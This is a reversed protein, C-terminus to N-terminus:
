FSTTSKTLALRSTGLQLLNNDHTAMVVACGRAAQQRLLNIIKESNGSDLSGTPEDAIIVQPERALARAVVVRQMEGGSLTSPFRGSMEKLGVYELLAECRQIVSNKSAVDGYQFPLSVNEIVNRDPLLHPAQFIFGFGQNRVRALGSGSLMSLKEGRFFVEGETPFDLGSLINLLTSKGSGSPGTVVLFDHKDVGVSVKELAVTSDNGTRYVRRINEASLLM